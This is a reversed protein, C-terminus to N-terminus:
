EEEGQNKFFIDINKLLRDNATGDSEFLLNTHGDSGEQDMVLLTVKKDEKEIHSFVSYKEKPYTNDNEGQVVLVPINSNIINEAGKTNLTEKDFLTIQYLWM